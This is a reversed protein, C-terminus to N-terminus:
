LGGRNAPGAARWAAWAHLEWKGVNRRCPDCRQQRPLTLGGRVWGTPQWRPLALVPM